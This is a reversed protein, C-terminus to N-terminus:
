RFMYAIHAWRFTEKAGQEFYEFRDSNTNIFCINRMTNNNFGGYAVLRFNKFNLDAGIQANILTYPETKASDSNADDSYMEGVYQITSKIYATYKNDFTYQYQLEGTGFNKPNSPEYNDSFDQETLNGFQDIVGARYEDYKFNQYAYSGRLTLGKVVDTNFGVEVGTRNSVAANRFFVDNDVVFPVIVDNIKLKYLSLEFFTRTFYKKKFGEVEGKIGVEFSTSKQAKLDPNM